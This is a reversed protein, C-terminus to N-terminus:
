IYPKVTIFMESAVASNVAITNVLHNVAITNVLHVRGGLCIIGLFPPCLIKHFKGKKASTNLLM